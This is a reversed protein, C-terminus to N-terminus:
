ARAEPVPMQQGIAEYFSEETPTPIVDGTDRRMLAGDKVQLWAPMLGGDRTSTVLRHSYGAPGTRIAFIVGFQAPPLVVFLDLGVDQYSLRKYRPGLAKRHNKDLRPSLDGIELLYACKEDLLSHPVRVLPETDFLGVHEVEARLEMRPIAVVELDGVDPKRRRISGAVAVRTCAPSLLDIVEAVVAEAQYLPLREGGSM